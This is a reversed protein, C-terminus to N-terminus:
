MRYEKHDLARAVFFFTVMFMFYMFSADTIAVISSYLFVSLTAYHSAFLRLTLYTWTLLGLFGFDYLIRLWGHVKECYTSNAAQLVRSTAGHSSRGESAAHKNMEISQIGSQTIRLYGDLPM